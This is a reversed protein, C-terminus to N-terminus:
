STNQKGNNKKKKQKTSNAAPISPCSSSSLLPTVTVTKTEDATPAPQAVNMTVKISGIQLKALKTVRHLLCSKMDFRQSPLQLPTDNKALLDILQETGDTIVKIEIMNYIIVFYPHSCNASTTSLTLDLLHISTSM